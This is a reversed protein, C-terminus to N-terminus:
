PSTHAGLALARFIRSKKDLPELSAAVHSSPWEAEGLCLYGGDVLSQRLRELTCEHVQRELYILVNRCCVLDFRNRGPWRAAETLDHHTFRVRARLANRVRYRTYRGGAVPELYRQALEAPLEDLAEPAYVGRRAADLALPDIDSAHVLGPCGAEELLMALTYAEEGCGCGASWIRIPTLRQRALHPIVENRLPDFAVRNRYFRSVKITLRQLLLPTEEHKARLVTFYTQLSQVGLLIMRNRIRRRITAPRYRSFDVGTRDRLVALIASITEEDAQSSNSCDPAASADVPASVCDTTTM